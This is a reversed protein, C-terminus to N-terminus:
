LLDRIRDRIRRTDVTLEPYNNRLMEISQDDLLNRKTYTKRYGGGITPKMDIAHGSGNQSNAFIRSLQLRDKKVSFIFTISEARQVKDSTKDRSDIITVLDLEENIYSERVEIEGDSFTRNELTEETATM